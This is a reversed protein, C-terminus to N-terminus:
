YSQEILTDNRPFFHTSVGISNLASWPQGAFELLKLALPILKPFRQVHKVPPGPAAFDRLLRQNTLEIFKGFSKYVALRIFFAEEM